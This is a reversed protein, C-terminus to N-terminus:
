SIILDVIKEINKLSHNEFAYKQAKIGMSNRLAHDNILNRTDRVMNDFNGSHFGINENKLINDPDVYLSVVPLGRMWGQIFTNPFGEALSTNVLIHAKSLYLNVEENSLEGLWRLNPINNIKKLVNNIKSNQYLRGIMFFSSNGNDGIVKALRVFVEPQKIPKMNAVWMVRIRGNAKHAMNLNTIPHGNPIVYSDIGYNSYLRESQFKTQAIIRDFFHIFYKFSNLEPYKIMDKLSLNFSPLLLDNDHAIHWVIKIRNFRAFLACIISVASRGRIYIVDPKIKKLIHSIKFFYLPIELGTNHINHIRKLTHLKINLSKKLPKGNHLYIYHVKHGASILQKAILYSQYEAGGISHEYFSPM